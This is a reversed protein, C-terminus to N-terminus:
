AHKPVSSCVLMGDQFLGSLYFTGTRRDILPTTSTQFVTGDSQFLTIVESYPVSSSPFTVPNWQTMLSGLLNYIGRPLDSVVKGVLTSSATIPRISIAWSPAVAGTVNAAVLVVAQLDPHGAVNLTGDDDYRVNDPFFPTKVSNRFTLANTTTNRDYLSVQLSSSSALAVQSGDPSVSVGNAFPVQQVVFTHQFGVSSEPDLTVHALWGLPIAYLTETNALIEGYPVPLRRTMLHDNSLYFSTPSTLAISNPAVFYPSTLTRIHQAVTPQAPDLVFHEVTSNEEAQNVVFLNSVAGNKSPYVAVGFPHFTHGEPYNARTVPSLSGTDTAYLWLYGSPEPDLMPGLVTNWLKLNPDCGLLVYRSTIHDESDLHDWFAIDECYNLNNDREDKVITCHKNYYGGIFYAPPLDPVPPAPVPVTHHKMLDANKYVYTALLLTLAIPYLM